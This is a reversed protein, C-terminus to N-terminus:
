QSMGLGNESWGDFQWLSLDGPGFHNYVVDLIVAIGLAHSAQVFDFLGQPGGYISKVAFPHSPNYGWSFDGAFETVPMLEIANIGLDCLYPLKQMASVFNGPGTNKNSNFTGIHLEYVVLGSRPSAKFIGSSEGTIKHWLVGNGASNTVKLTRPDVRSFTDKGRCLVFKYEDGVRACPVICSWVGGHSPSLSHAGPKWDNFTGVVSVAEAHPAWLRFAVGDAERPLFTAGLPYWTSSIEEAM